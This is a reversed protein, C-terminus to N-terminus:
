KLANIKVEPAIALLTFPAPDDSEVYIRPDTQWNGEFEVFLEGTFLPTASDMADSVERFDNKDLDSATPGYEITHSNLLVFTLGNIRKNRGVSTGAANGGEIKLTKLKHTYSM